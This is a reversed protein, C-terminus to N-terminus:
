PLPASYASPLLNRDIKGTTAYRYLAARLVGEAAAGLLAVVIGLALGAGVLVFGWLASGGAWTFLGWLGLVVAGVLGAGIILGIVVNSVLSRGFNSVFLHGSRALGKWAGENEYLIVPVMFYTAVTWTAGAAARIVLGGVGGVRSSIAQIALGVTASVLAWLALRRIRSRAIRWGDAATPQQGNLKLMAAGVLAGTAYVSIFALGFYALLLLVVGLALDLASAGGTIVGPLILWYEALLLLVVVALMSLGAVLPFVLLARDEAILRFSTKTLKWSDSFTGPM